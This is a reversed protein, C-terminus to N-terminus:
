YFQIDTSLDKSCHYFLGLISELEVLTKTSQTFLGNETIYLNVFSSTILINQKRAFFIENLNDTFHKV